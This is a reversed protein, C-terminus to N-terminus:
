FNNSNVDFHDCAYVTYKNSNITFNTNHCMGRCYTEAGTLNGGNIQLGVFCKISDPPPPPPMPKTNTSPDICLNNNCCCGSLIKQPMTHCSNVLDLNKCLTVPDCTAVTFTTTNMALSVSACEGYCTKPSGGSIAANNMYLGENCLIPPSMSPTPTPQPPINYSVANCNDADDCCYANFGAIALPTNCLGYPECAFLDVTQKMYSGVVHLCTGGNCPLSGGRLTGNNSYGVWCNLQKQPPSLSPSPIFQGGIPNLCMDSDCCCAGVTNGLSDCRNALGFRDCFAAPDCGYYTFSVSAGQYSTNFYISGCSASCTVITNGTGYISM